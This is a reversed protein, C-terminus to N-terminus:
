IRGGLDEEAARQEGSLVDHVLELHDCVQEARGRCLHWSSDWSLHGRAVDKTLSSTLM